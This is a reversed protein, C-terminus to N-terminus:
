DKTSTKAIKKRYIRSRNKTGVCEILEMKNFVWIMLHANNSAAGPQVLKQTKLEEALMKASFKQPLNPPLLALYDNATRFQKTEFIEDLKKGTKLWNRRFRRRGNRSQVPETTRVREETIKVELVELTFNPNLLVPYIGTLERFISYINEKKPSKRYSIKNGESDTLLIKREVPVPHVLKIKIGRELADLIKPLLKALNKTQIEIIGEEPSFIDYIYGNKEVETQGETQQSYLLKLTKHLHSENMTSFQM